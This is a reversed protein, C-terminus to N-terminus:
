ASSHTANSRFFTTFSPSNLAHHGNQSKNKYAREDIATLDYLMRFPQEADSRLYELVAIIKGQPTWITPTEDRTLQEHFINEGSVLAPPCFLM